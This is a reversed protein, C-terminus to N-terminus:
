RSSVIRGRLIIFSPDKVVTVDELPNADFIVLDASAGEEIGPVGLWERARWSAAGLAFETDGIRTLAEVEEAILGHAMAGGADTGAFIPM